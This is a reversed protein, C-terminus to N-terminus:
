RHLSEYVTCELSLPLRAETSSHGGVASKIFVMPSIIVEEGGEESTASPM